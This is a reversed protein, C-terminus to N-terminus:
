RKYEALTSGLKEHSQTMYKWEGVLVGIDMFFRVVPVLFLVRRDNFYRMVPASRLLIFLYWMVFAVLVLVVGPLGFLVPLLLLIVTRILMMRRLPFFCNVYNKVGLDKEAYLLENIKRRSFWAMIKVFSVRPKHYVVATPVYLCKFEKAVNQGMLFDDGGLRGFSDEKFRWKHFVDYRYACNCGSLLNTEAIKGGSKHYRRHGGGPFGLIDECLGILSGTQAFTSGAVGGVAPDAFAATIESLWKPDVICDDDTFAIIEGKANKVGTNRAYGLGLDRRPLFVYKVGDIPNPSDAEEVVVIEYQDLPYNMQFFSMIAQQLLERRDKTIVVVSVFPVKNDISM